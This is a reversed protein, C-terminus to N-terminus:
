LAMIIPKLGSIKISVKYKKWASAINRLRFHFNKRSDPARHHKHGALHVIGLYVTMDSFASFPCPYLPSCQMRVHGAAYLSAFFWFLWILQLHLELCSHLHIKWSLVLHMLAHVHPADLWYATFHQNENCTVKNNQTRIPKFPVKWM